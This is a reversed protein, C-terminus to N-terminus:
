KNEQKIIEILGSGQAHLFNWGQLKDIPKIIWSGGDFQVNCFGIGDVLVLNSGTMGYGELEFSGYIDEGNKDKQFTKMSITSPIVENDKIAITRKIGYHYQYGDIIYAKKMEGDYVLWGKVEGNGDTRQAKFM